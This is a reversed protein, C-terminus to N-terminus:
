PACSSTASCQQEDPFQCVSVNGGASVCLQGTPCDRTAMCAQHCRGFTCSLPNICDSNLLCGSALAGPTKDDSSCDVALLAFAGFLTAALLQFPPASTIRSMKPRRGRPELM